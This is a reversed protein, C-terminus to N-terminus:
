YPRKPIFLNFRTRSRNQGSVQAWPFPSKTKSLFDFKDFHEKGLYSMFKMLAGTFSGFTASPSVVKKMDRLDVEVGM